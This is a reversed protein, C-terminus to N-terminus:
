IKAAKGAIPRLSALWWCAFAWLYWSGLTAARLWGAEVAPVQFGLPVCLGVYGAALLYRTRRDGQQYILGAPGLLPLAYYLWAIPSLLCAAVLVAFWAGDRSQAPLRWALLVLVPAGLGIAVWLPLDLRAVWGWIALNISAHEWQVSRLADIWGASADPLWLIGVGYGGAAVAAAVTAAHWARRWLWYVAVLALFPKLYIAVGLWIGASVAQDDRDALWAATVLVFIVLHLQGLIVGLPMGHCALVVAAVQWAPRRWVRAIRATGWLAAILGASTWVVYAVRISLLALGAFVPAV